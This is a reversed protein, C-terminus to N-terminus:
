VLESVLRGGIVSRMGTHAAWQLDILKFSAQHTFHLKADLHLKVRLAHQMDPNTKRILILSVEFAFVLLFSLILPYEERVNFM